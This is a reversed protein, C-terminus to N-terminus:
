VEKLFLNMESERRRVLGPLVKGGAKNWRLFEKSAGDFDESNLKRLLTSKKFAGLGINYVFCVLADFQNQNLEVKVLSSIGNEFDYLDADLFVNAEDLTIKMNEPVPKGNIRTTGFGITNVGAPCVYAHSRFGEYKKILNKGEKGTKMKNNGRLVLAVMELVRRLLSM